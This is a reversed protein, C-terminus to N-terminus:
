REKELRAIQANLQDIKKLAADMRGNALIRIEVVKGYTIVAAVLSVLSPVIPAALHLWLWLTPIDMM